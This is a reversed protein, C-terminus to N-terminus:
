HFGKEDTSFCNLGEENISVFQHKKMLERLRHLCCFKDFYILFRDSLSLFKTLSYEHPFKLQFNWVSLQQICPFLLYLLYLLYLIYLIYRYGIILIIHITRIIHLFIFIFTKSINRIKGMSANFNGVLYCSRVQVFGTKGYFQVPVCLDYIGELLRKSFIPARNSLCTLLYHRSVSVMLQSPQSFWPAAEAAIATSLRACKSTHTCVRLCDEGCVSVSM